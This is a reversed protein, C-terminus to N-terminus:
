KTIMRPGEIRTELRVIKVEHENARIGLSKLDNGLADLQTEIRGLRKDQTFAAWGIVGILPITACFVPLFQQWFQNV